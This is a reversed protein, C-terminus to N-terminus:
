GELATELHATNNICKAIGASSHPPAPVELVTLGGPTAAFLRAQSDPNLGLAACLLGAVAAPSDVLVVVNSGPRRAVAHVAQHWTAALDAQSSVCCEEVTLPRAAPPQGAPPQQGLCAAWTSSSEGPATLVLHVESGGLVQAVAQCHATSPSALCLTVYGTAKSGGRYPSDRSQNLCQLQVLPPQDQQEGPRLLLSSVAANSQVLRRVMTCPLGLATAVLAQNTNNHAVVLGTTWAFDSGLMRHWALSARYWMERVPYHGMLQFQDPQQQWTTYEAPYSAKIDAKLLGQFTYLDIERLLTLSVRPVERGAWVLDATQAARALPSYFMCDFHQGALMAATARAQAIGKDTLVSQDSSGQVRSEANWTSQGHRVITVTKLATLAPLPLPPADHRDDTWPSNALAPRAIIAARIRHRPRGLAPHRLMQPQRQVQM